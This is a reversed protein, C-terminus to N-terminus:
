AEERMMEIHNIDVTVGSPKGVFLGCECVVMHLPDWVFPAVTYMPTLNGMSDVQFQGDVQDVHWNGTCITRAPRGDGGVYLGCECLVRHRVDFLFPMMLHIIGEPGVGEQITWATGATQFDMPPHHVVSSLASDPEVNNTNNNM